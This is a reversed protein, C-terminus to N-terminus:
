RRAARGSRWQRRARGLGAQSLDARAGEPVGRRGPGLPRLGNGALQDDGSGTCSLVEAYTNEKDARSRRPPARSSTTPPPRARTKTTRSVARGPLQRPGQARRAPDHGEDGGRRGASGRAPRQRSRVGGRAGRRAPILADVMTKDGAAAKGRAQVGELGKRWAAAYAPLDVEDKGALANGMQLFLTGYLPGAAGGVSSILAMAVTKLVAGADAQESASIKELAKTMGRNMNTGHDGDGIATDLAVLEQRHEAMEGAFRNM